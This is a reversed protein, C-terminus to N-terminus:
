VISQQRETVNTKNCPVQLFIVINIINISFFFGRKAFIEYLSFVVHQHLSATRWKLNKSCQFSETGAFQIFLSAFVVHVCAERQNAPKVTKDTSIMTLFVQKLANPNELREGQKMGKGKKLLM